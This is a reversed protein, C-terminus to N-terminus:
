KTINLLGLKELLKGTFPTTHQEAGGKLEIKGNIELPNVYGYLGYPANIEGIEVKVKKIYDNYKKQYYNLKKINFLDLGQKQRIANFAEIDGNRIADIINFYDDTNFTGNHRAYKNEIYPLGLESTSYQEM